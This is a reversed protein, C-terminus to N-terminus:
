TFVFLPPKVHRPSIVDLQSDLRTGIHHHDVAHLPAGRGSLLDEDLVGADGGQRCQGLRDLCQLRHVLDLLHVQDDGTADAGPGIHGLGQCQPGIRDRDSLRRQDGQAAVIAAVM